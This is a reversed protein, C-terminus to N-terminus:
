QQIVKGNKDKRIKSVVCSAPAPSNARVQIYDTTTKTSTGIDEGTKIDRVQSVKTGGKVDALYISGQVNPQNPLDFKKGCKLQEMVIYPIATAIGKTVIESSDFVGAESKQPYKAKEVSKKIDDRILESLSVEGNPKGDKDFTKVKFTTDNALSSVLDGFGSASFPGKGTCIDSIKDAGKAKELVETVTKM